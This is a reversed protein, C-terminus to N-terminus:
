AWRRDRPWRRSGARRRRLAQLVAGGGQQGVSASLVEVPRDIFEDMRPQEMANQSARFDGIGIGQDFGPPPHELVLPQVQVREVGDAGHLFQDPEIDVLVVRSKRVRRELPLRRVLHVELVPVVDGLLQFGGPLLCALCSRFRIPLTVALGALKSAALRFQLRRVRHTVHATALKRERGAARRSVPSQFSSDVGSVGLGGSSDVPIRPPRRYHSSPPSFERLFTCFTTVSLEAGGELDGLIMYLPGLLFRKGSGDHYNGM